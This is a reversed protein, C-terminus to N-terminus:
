QSGISLHVGYLYRSGFVLHIGIYALSGDSSHFGCLRQSLSYSIIIIVLVAYVFSVIIACCGYLLILSNNNFALFGSRLVAISLSSCGSSNLFSASLSWYWDALLCNYSFNFLFNICLSM